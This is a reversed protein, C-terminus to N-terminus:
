PGYSISSNMVHKSIEKSTSPVPEDDDSDSMAHASSSSVPTAAIRTKASPNKRKARPNLIPDKMFPVIFLNTSVVAVNLM